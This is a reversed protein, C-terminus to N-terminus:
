KATLVYLNQQWDLKLHPNVVALWFLVAQLSALCRICALVVYMTMAKTSQSEAHTILLLSYIIFHDTSYSFIFFIESTLM